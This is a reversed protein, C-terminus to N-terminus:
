RLTVVPLNGDSHYVDGGGNRGTVSGQGVIWQVTGPLDQLLKDREGDVDPDIHHTIHGTDTLGVSSDLTAAALWVPPERADVLWFRVHHRRRPDRGVPLEFALDFRRGDLFLSSVPATPYPKRFLVGFAVQLSSRWTIPDAPFWGANLMAWELDVQSGIVYLNILDAPRGSATFCTRARCPTTQPQNICALFTWALIALALLRSILQRM